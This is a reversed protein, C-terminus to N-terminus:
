LPIAQGGICAYICHGANCISQTGAACVAHCNVGKFIGGHIEKQDLKNLTKGLNKLNKM